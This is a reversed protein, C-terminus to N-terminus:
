LQYIYTLKNVLIYIDDCSEDEGEGRTSNCREKRIDIKFLKSKYKKKLKYLDKGYPESNPFSKIHSYYKDITKYGWDFVSLQSNNYINIFYSTESADCMCPPDEGYIIIQDKFRVTYETSILETSASLLLLAYLVWISVKKM